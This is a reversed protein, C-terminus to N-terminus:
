SPDPPARHPGQAPRTAAAASAPALQKAEAARLKDVHPQVAADLGILMRRAVELPLEIRDSVLVAVLGAQVSVGDVNGFELVVRQVNQCLRFAEAHVASTPM